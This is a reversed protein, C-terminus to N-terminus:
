ITGWFNQEVAQNTVADEKVAKQGLLFYEVDLRGGMPYSSITAYRITNDGDLLFHAPEAYHVIVGQSNVASSVYLGLQRMHDLTLGSAVPFELRLINSLNVANQFDDASVAVIEIGLEEFEDYRRNIDM